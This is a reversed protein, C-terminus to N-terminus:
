ARIMADLITSHAGFTKLDAGGSRAKCSGLFIMPVAVLVFLADFRKM